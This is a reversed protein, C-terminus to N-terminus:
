GKERSEHWKFFPCLEGHAIGNKFNLTALLEVLFISFQAVNAQESKKRWRDAM